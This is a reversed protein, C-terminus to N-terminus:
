VQPNIQRGGPAIVVFLVAVFAGWAPFFWWMYTAGGGGAASYIVGGITSGTVSGIATALGQLGFYSAISTSPAFTSVVANMVPQALMQGTVFVAVGVLMTATVPASGIVAVGCGMLAVALALIVPRSLRTNVFGTLPLMTIVMVVAAASYVVGVGVSGPLLEGARFPIVLYFQSVLVAVGAVLLCYRVFPADLFATRLRPPAVGEPRHMSPLGFFSIVFALMFLAASALTVLQFDVGSLLGGLVPGVVFGVNSIVERKSYVRVRDGSSALAAYAGYSAPHFLAGGLGTLLSAVVLVEVVDSVGLLAFGSARIVVGLLIARRFNIRDAIWGAIPMTGNQAATRVATLAAVVAITLGIDELFHYALLPVLMYFGVAMTFTDAYLVKLATARGEPLERTM